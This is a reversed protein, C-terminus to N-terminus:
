RKGLLQESPRKSMEVRFALKTVNMLNFKDTNRILM